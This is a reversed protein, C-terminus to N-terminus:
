PSQTLTSAEPTKNYFFWYVLPIFYLSVVTGMAMGGIIALSLPEQLESGM